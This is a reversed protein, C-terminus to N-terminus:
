RKDLKKHPSTSGGGWSLVLYLSSHWWKCFDQEIYKEVSYILYSGRLEFGKGRLLAQGAIRASMDAGDQM